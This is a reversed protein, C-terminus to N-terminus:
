YTLIGYTAPSGVNEGLLLTAPVCAWQGLWFANKKRRNWRYTRIVRTLDLGHVKFKHGGLPFRGSPPAMASGVSLGRPPNTKSFVARHACVRRREVDRLHM